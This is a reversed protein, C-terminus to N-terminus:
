QSYYERYWKVFQAIGERISTAPRYGLAAETTSIDSITVPVDGAQLPLFEKIAKKGLSQELAEVYAMLEVPRSAGINFIRFPANSTAPDPNASDWGPDPGAVQDSARVIGDVIDDIYTFDRVHKGYNFLNIPRDELINRTFIFLAMDPRGWPGYVTFFRLGTTPLRFLHSYAHAMLENARKTAAYFQLPHDVGAHESFPMKTNAGYVSSTSAYTLQAVKGHRCAELINTFGVLNSEVYAEPHELSYRVGAQAALHIVRDFPGVAFCEQVAASDALNARFFKYPVDLEAARKELIALRAEKLRRDYYDNVLDVGVVSDGRELLRKATHFGIFGACGTVLSKM